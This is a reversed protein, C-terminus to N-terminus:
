NTKRDAVVVRSGMEGTTFTTREFLVGQSKNRPVENSQSSSQTFNIPPSQAVQSQVPRLALAPNAIICGDDHVPLGCCARSNTMASGM